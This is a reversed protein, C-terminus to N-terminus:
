YGIHKRVHEPDQGVDIGAVLTRGASPRLLGSLMRILTSKGAGNPGLFGMIEGHGVTFSVQDVATFTGFREVLHDAIIRPVSPSTQETM